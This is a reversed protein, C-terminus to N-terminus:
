SSVLSAFGAFAVTVEAITLLVDADPLNEEGFFLAAELPDASPQSGASVYAALPRVGRCLAVLCSQLVSHGTM